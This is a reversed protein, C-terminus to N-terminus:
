ILFVILISTIFFLLSKKFILINLVKYVTFRMPKNAVRLYAYPIVVFTDLTITWILLKFFLPDKFGFFTAIADSFILMAILFLISTVLLSIFSTSVIKGKDNEKSFFRFFATEMGFTLLANFYAAYVYYDTNVAYKDAELTSTHLKVLFINIARPLVAAIGYIITDKFFRKLSSM